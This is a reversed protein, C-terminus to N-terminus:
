IAALVADSIHMPVRRPHLAMMVADALNPSVGGAYKDV